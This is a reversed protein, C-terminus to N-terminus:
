KVIEPLTDPHAIKELLSAWRAQMKYVRDIPIAYDESIKMAPVGDYMLNLVTFNASSGFYEISLLKRAVDMAGSSLKIEAM